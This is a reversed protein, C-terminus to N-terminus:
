ELHQTAIESLRSDLRGLLKSGFETLLGFYSRLDVREWHQVQFPTCVWSGDARHMSYDIPVLANSVPHQWILHLPTGPQVRLAPPSEAGLM